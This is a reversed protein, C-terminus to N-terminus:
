LKESGAIKKQYEAAKATNKKSSYLDELYTLAKRYNAKQVNTKNSVNEYFREVKEANVICDDMLKEYQSKLIAKMKVDAPKNSKVILNYANSKNASTNYLHNTLLMTALVDKEGENKIAM